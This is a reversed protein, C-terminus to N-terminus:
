IYAEMPSRILGTVKYFIKSKWLMKLNVSFSNLFYLTVMYGREVEIIEEILMETNTHVNTVFLSWYNVVPNVRHTYMDMSHTQWICSMCQLVVFYNWQILFARHRVQENKGGGGLCVAVVKWKDQKAKESVDYLPDDKGSQGREGLLM